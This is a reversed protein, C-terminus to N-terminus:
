HSQAKSLLPQPDAATIAEPLEVPNFYEDVEALLDDESITDIAIPQVFRSEHALIREAVDLRKKIQGIIKETQVLKSDDIKHLQSGVSATQIFRHKSELAEIKQALLTKQSRTRELLQMAASLSKERAHLLREKGSLVVEAEKFQDFRRALDERLQERTYHLNGLRYNTLHTNTLMTNVKQVREREEAIAVKSQEIDEQLAAIEVEEMAILRINAQMEPIIEELMDHARRLEFETPVSSKVAEQVSRASSRCYSILEGGFLFSGVVCLGVGLIVGRKIWKTVM